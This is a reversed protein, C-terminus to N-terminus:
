GFNVNVNKSHAYSVLEEFRVTDITEGTAPNAVEITEADRADRLEGGVLISWAKM